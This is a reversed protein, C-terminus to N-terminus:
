LARRNIEGLRRSAFYPVITVFSSDMMFMDIFILDIQLGSLIHLALLFCKQPKGVIFNIVKGLTKDEKATQSNELLRDISRCFKDQNEPWKATFSQMAEYYVIQMFSYKGDESQFKIYGERDRQSSTLEKLIAIEESSGVPKLVGWKADDGEIINRVSETQNQTLISITASKHWQRAFRWDETPCGYVDCELTKTGGTPYWKGLTGRLTEKTWSINGRWVHLTYDRAVSLAAEIIEDATQKGGAAKEQSVFNPVHKFTVPWTVELYFPLM